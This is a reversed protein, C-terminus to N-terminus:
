RGYAENGIFGLQYGAITMINLLCSMAEMDEGKPPLGLKKIWEPSLTHPGYRSQFAGKAQPGCIHEVERTFAAEDTTGAVYKPVRQLLGRKALWDRAEAKMLVSARAERIGDFRPQITPPLEVFIGFGTADDLCRLQNETASAAHPVSLIDSQLEDEYRITVPGLGCKGAREVAMEATIRELGEFANAATAAWATLAILFGLFGTM